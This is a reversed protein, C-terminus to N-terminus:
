QVLTTFARTSTWASMGDYDGCNSRVKVTYSTEPDLTRFTYTTDRVSIETFDTDDTAKYAVIWEDAESAWNLTAGHNTVNSTTFSTPVVCAVGTTFNVINSWESLTNGCNARVKATYATEPVLGSFSYSTESVNVETFDEEATAKYAVIWEDADSVWNLTAEHATIDSAGVGTPKACAPIYDVSVNDIHLNNDSNTEQVTSEGYFAIAINQGAYRSLDITVHEGVASCTIANYVYESGTNNWERLITLTTDASFSAIM